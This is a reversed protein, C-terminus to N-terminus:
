QMEYTSKNRISIFEEMELISITRTSNGQRTYLLFSDDGIGRVFSLKKKKPVEVIAVTASPSYKCFTLTVYQNVLTGEHFKSIIQNRFELEWGDLNQKEASFFCYDREVGILGGDDAVGIILRGGQSNLFAAITKLTSHTVKESKLDNVSANKDYQERKLDLFITSKFENSFDEGEEIIKDLHKPDFFREKPIKKLLRKEEFTGKEISPVITLGSADLLKQVELVDSLLNETLNNILLLEYISIEQPSEFASSCLRLFKETM